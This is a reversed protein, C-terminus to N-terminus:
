RRVFKRIVGIAGDIDVPKVIYDNMGAQRAMERDEDFANASMAVIPISAIEGDPLARIARTADYGNMHPMQIDTLVLDFDGPTAKSLVEVAEDGDSVTQVEIGRQTLIAVAIERNMENDEVLLVRTGAIDAEPATNVAAAPATGATEAAPAGATVGATGAGADADADGVECALSVVFESGHGPTSAVSITGGM